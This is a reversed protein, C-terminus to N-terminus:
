ETGGTLLGMFDDLQRQVVERPFAMLRALEDQLWEKQEPNVWAIPVVGSGDCSQCKEGPSYWPRQGWHDGPDCPRTVIEEWPIVADRGNPNPKWRSDDYEGVRTVMM